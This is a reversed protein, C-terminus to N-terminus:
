LGFMRPSNTMLPSILPVIQSTVDHASVVGFTGIVSPFLVPAAVDHLRFEDVRFVRVMSTVCNGAGTPRYDIVRLERDALEFDSLCPDGPGARPFWGVTFLGEEGQEMVLAVPGALMDVYVVAADRNRQMQDPGPGELESEFCDRYVRIPYDEATGEIIRPEQRAPPVREIPIYTDRAIAWAISSACAVSLAILKAERSSVRDLANSARHRL